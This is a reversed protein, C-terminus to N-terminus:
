HAGSVLISGSQMFPVCCAQSQQFMEEARTNVEAIHKNLTGKTLYNYYIIRYNAKLHRRYRQGWVDIQYEKQEDLGVNPLMYDRVQRDDVGQQEFIIKEKQLAM